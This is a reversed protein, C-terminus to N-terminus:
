GADSREEMEDRCKALARMILKEVASRSIGLRAAVETHSLGDIKHLIFAERQREPLARVIAELHRIRQRHSLIQESSPNAEEIVLDQTLVRRRSNRARLHDLAMNRATTWLYARPNAVEPASRSRDIRVWTDQLVDEADDRCGLMRQLWLHLTAYNELFATMVGSPQSQLSM